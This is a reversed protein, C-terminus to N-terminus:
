QKTDLAYRYTPLGEEKNVGSSTGAQVARRELKAQRREYRRMVKVVDKALKRREEREKKLRLREAIKAGRGRFAKSLEKFFKEKTTLLWEAEEEQKADIRDQKEAEDESDLIEVDSDSDSDSSTKNILSDSVDSNQLRLAKKKQWSRTEVAACISLITTVLLVPLLFIALLFCLGFVLDEDM